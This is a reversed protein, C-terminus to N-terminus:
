GGGRGQADWLVRLVEDESESLPRGQLSLRTRRRRVQAAIWKSALELGKGVAWSLVYEVGSPLQDKRELGFGPRREFTVGAEAWEPSGPGPLQEQPPEIDTTPAVKEVWIAISPM